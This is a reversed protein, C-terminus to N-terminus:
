DCGRSCERKWGACGEVVDGLFSRATNRAEDVKQRTEGWWRDVYSSYRVVSHAVDQRVDDLYTTTKSLPDLVVSEYTQKMRSQIVQPNLAYQLDPFVEGFAGDYSASLPNKGFLRESWSLAEGTVPGYDQFVSNLGSFKLAM